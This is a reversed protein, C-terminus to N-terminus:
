VKEADSGLQGSGFGDTPDTRRDGAASARAGIGRIDVAYPLIHSIVAGM